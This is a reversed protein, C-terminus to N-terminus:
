SEFYVIKNITRVLIKADLILSYQEIYELDDALMDLTGVNKQRARVQWLGTIGPRMVARAAGFEPFPDLMSVALPRPGVLSMEGRLVNLLQPLEDISLARLWRGLPTIRPDAAHLLPRGDAGFEALGGIGLVMKQDTRMSRFKLCPFRRQGWGYREGAYIAAGPSTMRVAIAVCLLLPGVMALIFASVIVDFMRKGALQTRFGLSACHRQRFADIFKRTDAEETALATM